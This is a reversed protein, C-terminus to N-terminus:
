FTNEDELKEEKAVNTRTTRGSKSCFNFLFDVFLHLIKESHKAFRNTLFFMQVTAIPFSISFHM